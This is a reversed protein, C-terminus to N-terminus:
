PTDKIGRSTNYTKCCVARVIIVVVVIVLLFALVLGTAIQETNM